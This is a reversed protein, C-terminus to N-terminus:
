KNETLEEEDGEFMEKLSLEKVRENSNFLLVYLEDAKEDKSSIMFYINNPEISHENSTQNFYKKMFMATLAERNMFDFKTRLIDKNFDLDIVSGDENTKPKGEVLYFYEPMLEENKTHIMIQVNNCSVSNEKAFNKLAGRMVKEVQKTIM